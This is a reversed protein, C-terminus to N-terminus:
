FDGGSAFTQVEPIQEDYGDKALEMKMTYDGHGIEHVIATIMYNGSLYPDYWDDKNKPDEVSPIDVSVIEGVRRRSDGNVTITLTNTRFQNM